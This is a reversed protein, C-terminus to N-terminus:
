GEGGGDSQWEAVRGSEFEVGVVERERSACGARARWADEEWEALGISAKMEGDNRRGELRYQGGLGTGTWARTRHRKTRERGM